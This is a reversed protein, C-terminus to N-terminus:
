PHPWSRGVSPLQGRAPASLQYLTGKSPMVVFLEM